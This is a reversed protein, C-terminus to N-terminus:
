IFNSVDVKKKIKNNTNIDSKDDNSECNIKSLKCVNGDHDLMVNKLKLEIAFRILDKITTSFPQKSNAVFEFIDNDNSSFWVAKKTTMNESGILLMNGQKGTEGLM